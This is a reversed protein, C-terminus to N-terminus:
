EYLITLQLSGTYIGGPNITYDVINITGGLYVTVPNNKLNQYAGSSIPPWFKIQRIQRTYGGGQRTLTVTTPVYIHIVKSNGTGSGQHSIYLEAPHHISNRLEVSGTASRGLNGNTVDLSVTGLSGTVAIKGFNFNKVVDVNIQARGTNATLLLLLAFFSLKLKM